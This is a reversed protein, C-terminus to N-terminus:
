SASDEPYNSNLYNTVRDADAATVLAVRYTLRNLVAARTAEAFDAVFKDVAEERTMDDTATISAIKDIDYACVYSYMPDYTNAAFIVGDIIEPIYFETHASTPTYTLQQVTANGTLVDAISVRYYFNRGFYYMYEGDDYAYTYTVLDEDYVLTELGFTKDNMKNYDYRVIGYSADNYLIKDFDYYVANATFIKDANLGNSLLTLGAYNDEAKATLNALEIGYYRTISSVSTDVYTESMYLQTATLKLFAFTVGQTGIGTQASYKGAGSFALTQGAGTLDYRYVESFSEEEERAENYAKKEYFAYRASADTSFIYSGVADSEFVKKGDESYTVLKNATTGDDTTVETYVTLYVKGDKEVMRYPTSLSSFEAILSTKKGDLSTKCFQLTDYQVEGLKNKDASPTPYYVNNGFIYFGANADSYDTYILKPIVLETKTEAGFNKVDALKARVIAGKQVSGFTNDATHDEIGNILYVYEGKQVVFGGNSSVEGQYETVGSFSQSCGVMVAALLCLTLM